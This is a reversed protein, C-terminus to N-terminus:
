AANAAVLGLAESTPVRLSAKAVWRGEDAAGQWCQLSIDRVRSREARDLVGAYADAYGGRVQVSSRGLYLLGESGDDFVAVARWSQPKAETPHFMPHGEKTLSIPPSRGPPLGGTGPESM